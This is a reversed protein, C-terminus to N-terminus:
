KKTLLDFMIILKV